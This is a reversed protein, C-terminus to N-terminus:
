NVENNQKKLPIASFTNPGLGKVTAPKVTKWDFNYRKAMIRWRRNSLDQAVKKNPATKIINTLAELEMLTMTYNKRAKEREDKM